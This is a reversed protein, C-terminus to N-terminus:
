SPNPVVTENIQKITTTECMKVTRFIVIYLKYNTFKVGRPSLYYTKSPFLFVSGEFSFSSPSKLNEPIESWLKPGVHM